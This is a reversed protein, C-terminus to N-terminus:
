DTAAHAALIRKVRPWCAEPREWFLMHRTRPVIELEAHPLRAALIRAFEVPTSDGRAGCTGCHPRQEPLPAPILGM